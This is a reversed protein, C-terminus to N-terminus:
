QKSFFTKTVVSEAGWTLELKTILKIKGGEVGPPPIMTIPNQTLILDDGKRVLKSM